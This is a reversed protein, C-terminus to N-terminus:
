TNQKKILVLSFMNLNAGKIQERVHMYIALLMVIYFFAKLNAGKIQDRVHMYIALLKVIYFFSLSYILIFSFM